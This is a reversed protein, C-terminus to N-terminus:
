EISLAGVRDADHALFMVQPFSGGDMGYFASVYKNMQGSLASAFETGRDIEIFYHRGPLKVYADHKLAYGGLHRGGRSRISSSKALSTFTGVL